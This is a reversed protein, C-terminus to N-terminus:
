QFSDILCVILPKSSVQDPSFHTTPILIKLILIGGATSCSIKYISHIWLLATLDVEPSTILALQLAHQQWSLIWVDLQVYRDEQGSIKADWKSVTTHKHGVDSHCSNKLPCFFLVNFFSFFFFIVKLRIGPFYLWINLLMLYLRHILLLLSHLLAFKEVTCNYQWTVLNSQRALILSDTHQDELLM